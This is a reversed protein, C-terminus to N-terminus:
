RLEGRRVYHQDLYTLLRDLSARDGALVDVHLHVDGRGLASRGSPVITEGAEVHVLGPRLVAGGHQASPVVRLEDWIMTLRSRISELYYGAIDKLSANIGGLGNQVAITTAGALNPLNGTAEKIGALPPFLKINWTEAGETVVKQIGESAAQTARFIALAEAAAAPIIGGPEAITSAEGAYPAGVGTSPIPAIGGPEAITSALGAMMARGAAEGTTRYIEEMTEPSFHWNRPDLKSTIDGVLEGIKGLLWDKLGQIGNWLATVIDGGIGLAKSPLSFLAGLATNVFTTIQTAVLDAGATIGKWTDSWLGAVLALRNQFIGWVADLYVGVLGKIGEWVDVFLQKVGEWATQWDGHILATVIKIIDRVAKIATEIYIKTADWFATTIVTVDAWMTKFIEGIIPIEGIKDLFSDIAGPVDVTFFKSIDDWKALVVALIAAIGVWAIILGGLPNLMVFIAAALLLVIEKHQGLYEALQKLYPMIIEIAPELNVWADHLTDLAPALFTAISKGIELGIKALDLFWPIARQIAPIIDDRVIVAIRGLWIAVGQLPEPLKALSGHMDAGVALFDKIFQVTNGIINNLKALGEGIFERVPPLIEIFAKTLKTLAPMVALGIQLKIGEFGAHMERQAFTYAKIQKLSKESLVLGFKEADEGLAKLGESGQNLVPIMDKGSRGFLQMALGTKEVGDPMTKFYEAIQPMIDGMPLLNGTADTAQVGLDALIAATSKGGTTVGTEEDSVGKLKKALIGLSRSADDSSLGYHKFAYILKSAEEATEGTERKLKGVAAGLEQAVGIGASLTKFSVFAAVVGGAAGALALLKTNLGHSADGVNKLVGSASDKAAIIIALQAASAM